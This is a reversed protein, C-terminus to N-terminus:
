FSNRALPASTPPASASSATTSPPVASIVPNGRASMCPSYNVSIAPSGDERLFDRLTTGGQKISRQLVTQITGVLRTLRVRSIRGAARAPHIGAYYLAESAYINGVGVVVSADMITEKITKKRQRCCAHLYEGHFDASLPEPGLKSLLPHEFPDENTWLWAGFRRPDHFRLQLGNELDILM